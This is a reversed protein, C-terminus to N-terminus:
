KDNKDARARYVTVAVFLAAQGILAVIWGGGLGFIIVASIVISPGVWLLPVLNEAEAGRYWFIASAIAVAIAM